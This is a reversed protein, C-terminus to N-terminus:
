DSVPETRPKFLWLGSAFLIVSCLIGLWPIMSQNEAEFVVHGGAEQEGNVDMAADSQRIDVITEQLEEVSSVDELIDAAVTSLGRVAGEESLEVLGGLQPDNVLYDASLSEELASGADRDNKVSDLTLTGDPLVVATVTGVVSGNQYLPAIWEDSETVLDEVDAVQDDNLASSNWTFIREPVGVEFPADRYGDDGISISVSQAILLEYVIDAANETFWEVVDRPVDADTVLSAQAAPCGSVFVFALVGLTGISFKKFV